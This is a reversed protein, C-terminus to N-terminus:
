APEGALGYYDAMTRCAPVPGPVRTKLRFEGVRGSTEWWAVPATTAISDLAMAFVDGPPITLVGAGNRDQLLRARAKSWVHSAWEPHQMSEHAPAVAEVWTWADGQFTVPELSDAPLLDMRDVPATRTMKRPTGVMAGITQVLMARLASRMAEAVPELEPSVHALEGRLKIIRRAWTDLPRGSRERWLLREVPRVTWGYAIALQVECGDAWTEHWGSDTPWSLSRDDNRVGFLGVHRWSRPARFQVRYRGRVYPEVEHGHDHEVPGTPMENACAAYMFAADYVWLGADSGADAAAGLQFRGQTATDRILQQLDPSLPAFTRRTESWQRELLLRGTTVPYGVLHARYYGPGDTARPRLNWSVTLADALQEWAAACTGADADGFWSDARMIVVRQGTLENRYTLRPQAVSVYQEGHPSWPPRCDLAWRRLGVIGHSGPVDGTTYVRRVHAPLSDLLESVTGRPPAFMTDNGSPCNEPDPSSSHYSESLTEM